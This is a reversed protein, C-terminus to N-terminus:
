SARPSTPSSRSRRGTTPTSPARAAWPPSAARRRSRTSSVWSSTALWTTGSNERWSAHASVSTWSSGVQRRAVRSTSALVRPLGSALSPLAATSVSSLSSESPTSRPTTTTPRWSTSSSAMKVLGSGLPPATTALRSSSSGSARAPPAVTRSSSEPSSPWPRRSALPLSRRPTTPWRTRSASTSAQSRASPTRPGWRSWSTRRPGSRSAWNASRACAMTLSAKIVETPRSRDQIAVSLSPM